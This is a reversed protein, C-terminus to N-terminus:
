KNPKLYFRRHSVTSLLPIVVWATEGEFETKRIKEGKAVSCNSELMNIGKYKLYLYICDHQFGSPQQAGSSLEWNASHCQKM